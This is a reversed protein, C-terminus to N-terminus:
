KNSVELLVNEFKPVVNYIEFDKSREKGKEALKKALEKDILVNEIALALNNPDNIPVLLGVEGEKLIEAPGSPCDTSVVPVGLALAEAVVMGFGEFRSSLVFVNALSIYRYPNNTFGLLTVSNIVNLEKILKELRKRESGEGLILLHHKIGKNILISHARILVDFGKEPVLRGAGVVLPRDFETFEVDEKSKQVIKNVPLPNYITEIDCSINPYMEKLDKAVGKSVTIIKNLFPYTLRTLIKHIFKHAPPFYKLNTHVWGISPKKLVRGGIAALYTATLELAGVIVDSKKAETFFSKFLKILHLEIKEGKKLARVVRIDKPIEEFYVGEDKILFLVPNFKRRDLHRIIDLTVREAGGGQLNPLIFM